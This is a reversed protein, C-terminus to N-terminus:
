LKHQWNGKKRPYFSGIRFGWTGNCQCLETGQTVNPGAKRKPELGGESRQAGSM